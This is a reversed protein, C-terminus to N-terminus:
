LIPPEHLKEHIARLYFGIALLVTEQIYRDKPIIRGYSEAADALFRDAQTKDLNTM